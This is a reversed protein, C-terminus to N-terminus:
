VSLMGLYALQAVLCRSGVPSVAVFGAELRGISWTYIEFMLDVRDCWLIEILGVM